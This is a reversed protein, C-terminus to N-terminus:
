APTQDGDNQPCASRGFLWCLGTSPHASRTEWSPQDTKPYACFGHVKNHPNSETRPMADGNKGAFGSLRVGSTSFTSDGFTVRKLPRWPRHNILGSDAERVPTCDYPQPEFCGTGFHFGPLHFLLSFGAYGRRNLKSGCGYVRLHPDSCSM